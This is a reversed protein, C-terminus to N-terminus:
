QGFYKHLVWVAAKTAWALHHTYKETELEENRFM